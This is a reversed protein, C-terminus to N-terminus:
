TNKASSIGWFKCVLNLFIWFIGSVIPMAIGLAASGIAHLRKNCNWFEIAKFFPYLSLAACLGYIIYEHIQVVQGDLYSDLGTIYLIPTLLVWICMVLFLQTWRKSM